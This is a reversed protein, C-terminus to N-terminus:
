SIGDEGGTGTVGERETTVGAKGTESLHDEEGVEGGTAM